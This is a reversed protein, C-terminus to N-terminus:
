KLKKALKLDMKIQKRLHDVGKFKKESRIFKKFEVTLKKNYLNRTFNFINVELLIKKQNFTPRYGLNAIGNLNKRIGNINVSVAYVGPKAIIYDSLDINCTPFGIKKGLQRGRQVVGEVSWFRNLYQNVIDLKGSKLLNRILTSSVIKKKDKLPTPNIIKYKYKNSLNKLLNVDGERKNGFRFNNSVFIYKVKLKKSLINKIFNYSKINSFKKDFKKNIIFDVNYKKLYHIKQNFNSIRYNRLKKNFFMKPIPDFTVVGLKSRKSKKYKQAQKFLKQHGLHLGDFNGILIIANQDSSSINFSKYIKIKKVM